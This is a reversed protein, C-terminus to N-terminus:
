ECISMEEADIIEIVDANIINVKTKSKTAKTSKKEKPEKILPEDIMGSKVLFNHFGPDKGREDDYWKEIEICAHKNGM